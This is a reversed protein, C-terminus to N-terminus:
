TTNRTERLISKLLVFVDLRIVAWLLILHWLQPHGEYHPIEFLIERLSASRAIQWAQAEDFWPEHFSMGVIVAISVVVTVVIGTILDYKKKEEKM